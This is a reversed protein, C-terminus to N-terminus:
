KQWTCSSQTKCYKSSSPSSSSPHWFKYHCSGACFASRSGYVLASFSLASWVTVNGRFPSGAPLFTRTGGGSNKTGVRCLYSVSPHTETRKMLVSAEELLWKFWETVASWCKETSSWSWCERPRSPNLTPEMKFNVNGCSIIDSNQNNWALIHFIPTFVQWQLANENTKAGLWSGSFDDRTGRESWAWNSAEKCLKVNVWVFLVFWSSTNFMWTCPLLGFSLVSFKMVVCFLFASEPNFRAASDAWKWLIHVQDTILLVSLSPKYSVGIIVHHMQLAYVPQIDM